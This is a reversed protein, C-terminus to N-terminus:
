NIYIYVQSFIAFRHIYKYVDVDNQIIGFTPKGRVNGVKERRRQGAGQGGEEKEYKEVGARWERGGRGGGQIANEKAAGECARRGRGGRRGAKRGGAEGRDQRGDM